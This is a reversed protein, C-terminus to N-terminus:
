SQISKRRFMKALHGKTDRKMSKDRDHLDRLEGKRGHKRARREARNMPRDGGGEGASAADAGADEGAGEVKEKPKDKPDAPSEKEDDSM